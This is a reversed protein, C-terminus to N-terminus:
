GETDSKGFHDAMFERLSYAAGPSFDRSRALAPQVAAKNM